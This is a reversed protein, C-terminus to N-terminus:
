PEGGHPARLLTGVRRPGVGFLGLLAIAALGVAISGAVVWAISTITTGLLPLGAVLVVAAVGMGVAAYRSRRWGIAASAATVFVSYTAMAAALGVLAGGAAQYDSGYLLDLLTGRLVLVCAFIAGSVSAAVAAVLVTLRLAGALDGRTRRGAINPLMVGTIAAPIVIFMQALNKAAAYQGLEVAGLSAEVWIQDASNWVVYALQWAVLPLAVLWLVRLTARLDHGIRPRVLIPTRLECVLVPLISSVGYVLLAVQPTPDAIAAIAVFAVIQVASAGVYTVAARHLQRMGRAISYYTQFVVTGLFVVCFGLADASGAVGAAILVGAVAILALAIMGAAVLGGGLTDRVGREDNQRAGLETTLALCLVQLPGFFLLVLTITYRLEGFGAPALVRAAVLYFLFSLLRAGGEIGTLGAFPALTRAVRARGRRQATATV